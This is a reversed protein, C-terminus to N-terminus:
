GKSLMFICAIAAALALVKRPNIRENHFSVGLVTTVIFSLQTIPVVVSADALSTALLMFYVIGCVLGGSVVSFGAMRGAPRIPERRLLAFIVGGILWCVGGITLMEFQPIGENNSVKYLIGMCARLVCATALAFAAWRALRAEGSGNGNRILLVAALGLAVGLLKWVTVAEHLVTVGLLAVLVLNLRYITAGTGAPVERFSGIFLLNAGVSAAGAGLSVGWARWTPGGATFFMALGFVATWVVGVAAVFWGLPHRGKHIYQKFVFDNLGASLLSCLAYVIGM